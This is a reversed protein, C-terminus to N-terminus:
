YDEPLLVCTSSRDSETIVWFKKGERDHYVSFLRFGEKLSLENEARDDETVDGWDGRLHRSLASQVDEPHLRRLANPTIVMQGAQFKSDSFSM